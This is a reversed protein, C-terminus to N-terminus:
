MLEVTIREVYSVLSTRFLSPRKVGQLLGFEWVPFREFGLQFKAKKGFQPM